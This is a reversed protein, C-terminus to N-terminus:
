YEVYVKFGSWIWRSIEIKSLEDKTVYREEFSKM